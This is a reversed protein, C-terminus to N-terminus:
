HAAALLLALVSRKNKFHAKFAQQPPVATDTHGPCATLAPHAQGSAPSRWLQRVHAGEGAFGRSAGACQKGQPTGAQLKYNPGLSGSACYNPKRM